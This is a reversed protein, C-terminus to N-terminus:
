ITIITTIIIIMIMKMLTITMTKIVVLVMAMTSYPIATVILSFDPSSWKNNCVPLRPKLWYNLTLKNIINKGYFGMLDSPFELWWTVHLVLQMFNQKTCNQMITLGQNLVSLHSALKTSVPPMYSLRRHRWNRCRQHWSLEGKETNWYDVSKFEGNWRLRTNIVGFNLSKRNLSFVVWKRLQDSRM